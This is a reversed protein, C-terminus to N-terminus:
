QDVVASANALSLSPVYRVVTFSEGPLCGYLNTISPSVQTLSGSASLDSSSSSPWPPMFETSMAPTLGAVEGSACAFGSSPICVKVYRGSGPWDGLEAATAPSNLSQDFSAVRM